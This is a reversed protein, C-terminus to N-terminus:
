EYNPNLKPDLLIKMNEIYQKMEDLLRNLEGKGEPTLSYYKRMRNGAKRTEVSLIGKSELKHLSPYLAGETIQMRGKTLEKVKQTIEYGYMEDHDSLLKIVITDLSGRLLKSSLPILKVCSLFYFSGLFM